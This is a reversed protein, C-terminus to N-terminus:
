GGSVPPFIAVEQGPEIVQDPFAYSQEVAVNLSKEAGRLSPHLAIFTALLRGVTVPEAGEITTEDGVLERLSAFLQVNVLM